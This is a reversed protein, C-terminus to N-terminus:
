AQDYDSNSEQWQNLRKKVRKLRRKNIGNVIELFKPNITHNDFNISGKLYPSKKGRYIIIPWNSLLNILYLGNSDLKIM